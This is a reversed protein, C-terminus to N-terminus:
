VLFFSFCAEEFMFSIENVKYYWNPPYRKLIEEGILGSEPIEPLLQEIQRIYMKQWIKLLIQGQNKEFM